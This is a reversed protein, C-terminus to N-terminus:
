ATPPHKHVLHRSHTDATRLGLKESLWQLIVFFLPVFFLALTSAVFMGGMIGTGISRRANAGAGTAIVLPVVGLIFAFSTMLVPRLRERAAEVAADTISKGEKRQLVCFEVILISNKAALGILTLLGIQFYIDASMDRLLVFGYAGVAGFPVVLLVALPLVWNEYLAALLLFVVVLGMGILVPATNGARVEQYSAGNWQIQYGPPLVEAAVQEIARLAQGSSFGPAVGGTVQVSTRGNYRFVANPGSTFQADVLGALPVMNGHVSRVYIRSFDQPSARFEPEAQLQVRWVRGAKDFDNVYLSGFLSQLADFLDGVPVGLSRARTTDARVSLQPLSVSLPSTISMAVVEPRARLANLFRQNVEFLQRVDAGAAAQLQVDFGARFGLGQIPPPSVTFIMAERIASLEMMARGAVSDADSGPAQRLDWHKLPVFLVAGNTSPIRGAFLDFGSLSVVNELEPQDGWWTEVKRVVASTRDISAGQPLALGTILFGQDEGPIFATPTRKLLDWGVYTIAAFLLLTVVGFRIGQRVGWTYGSTAWGFARNFWGFPGRKAPTRHRLLLRCLAPTLTLAVVGSIFVSVSVTIAFQQYLQGTLGGIFVVPLFVAGLVATVAIIPGTVQQMAKVTADRVSLDHETELIREVNEVVIIADDVVIGIALVLGFLTLTNITYGLLLMGAFAGVISVPVAVLPILASRWNQLFVFVVLAVLLAAEFLTKVVERISVDIFRTTDFPITVSIGQPLNPRLEELTRRVDAVTDLANAEPRLYMLIGAGPQGNIRNLLDYSESGLEVRALDSLLVQSGDPNSRVIIREFEEPTSFRGTTLIPITLETGDPAPAQGIRGAPFLANQDRIAAAVDTVTLQRMALRDPDLWIRMAYDRNGFVQADGVGPLRRLADRLNITAYNALFTVDYLPNDSQLIVVCLIDTNAKDVVVGRRTAEAPLRPVARNVRNQVQVQAQDINTGIEFYCTLTYSGDNASNSDFYLLNDVGSIEQEIPVGVSQAVTIANAGPYNVRVVVTPPTIQPYQAVPLTYISLVGALVILIALVSALVPRDIFFRSM